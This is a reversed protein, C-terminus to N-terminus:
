QDHRRTPFPRNVGQATRRDPWILQSYIVGERWGGQSKMMAIIAVKVRERERLAERMIEGNRAAAGAVINDRHALSGRSSARGEKKGGSNGAM